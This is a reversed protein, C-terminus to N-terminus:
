FITKSVEDSRVSENGAADVATIVFYYTGPQLNDVVASTTTRSVITVPAGYQGPTTTRYIRYGSLDSEANANWELVASNPGATATSASSASSSGGDGGGGGGLCASLLVTAAAGIAITIPNRM